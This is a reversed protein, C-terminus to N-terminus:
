RKKIFGKLLYFNPESMLPEIVSRNGLVDYLIIRAKVKGLEKKESISAEDLYGIPVTMRTNGYRATVNEADIIIEGAEAGYIDGFLPIRVM